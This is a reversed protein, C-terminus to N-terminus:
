CRYAPGYRMAPRLARTTHCRISSCTQRAIVLWISPPPCDRGFIIREAAVGRAQAERRLNGELAASGGLLYLVSDPVRTLIRMWGDFTGPTLKYTSNLCCFVFGQQPLGLEEGPSGGRRSPGSPTTSRTARCTSSRRRITRGCRRRFSPTTPSWTIWTTPRWRASTASIASRSRRRGCPSSGRGAAAPLAASIWRSTSVELSRALQAIDYDSQQRVDIFRDFAAAVRQRM